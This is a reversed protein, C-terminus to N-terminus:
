QKVNKKGQNRTSRSFSSGHLEQQHHYGGGGGEEESSFFEENENDFMKSDLLDIAEDLIDSLSMVVSSTRPSWLLNM